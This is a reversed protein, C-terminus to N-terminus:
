VLNNRVAYAIAESRTRTATKRMVSTIYNNITNKSIGIITAIEDSTKGEAIWYLCELERDTLELERGSRAQESFLLSALYSAHVGIARLGQQSLIVDVPCLLTLCYRHRGVNFALSCYQSVGGPLALQDALMDFQPQLVSLCKDLETVRSLDAIAPITKRVLDFPWDSAIVHDLGNDSSADQRMLLFGGGGVYDTLARLGRSIDGAEVADSLRGMLEEYTMGRRVRASAADGRTAEGQKNGTVEGVANSALPIGVGEATRADSRRVACWVNFGHYFSRGEARCAPRRLLSM